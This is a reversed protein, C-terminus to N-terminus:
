PDAMTLILPALSRPVPSYKIHPCSPAPKVPVELSSGPDNPPNPEFSVRSHLASSVPPSTPVTLMIKSVSLIEGSNPGLADCYLNSVSASPSKEFAVTMIGEVQPVVIVKLLTSKLVSLKKVNAFVPIWSVHTDIKPFTEAEQDVVPSHLQPVNGSLEAFASTIAVCIRMTESVCDTFSKSILAPADTTTLAFAVRIM